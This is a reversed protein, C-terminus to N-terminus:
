TLGFATKTRAEVRQRAAERRALAEAEAPDLKKSGKGAAAAASTTEERKRQVAAAVFGLHLM